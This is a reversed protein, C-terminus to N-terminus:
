IKGIGAISLAGSSIALKLYLNFGDVDIGTISPLDIDM